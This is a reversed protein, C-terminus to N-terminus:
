AHLARSIFLLAGTKSAIQLHARGKAGVHYDGARLLLSKGIKMEGELMLCEEDGAHAHAPVRAGPALRMLFSERGAARDVHLPKITVGPLLPQWEAEDARITRHDGAPADLRREIAQWVRKPPAVPKLGGALPALRAEWDAVERRLAADGSLRREFRERAAGPLSGLAFEAADDAHQRSLTTAVPRPM